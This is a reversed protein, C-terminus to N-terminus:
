IRLFQQGEPEKRWQPAGRPRKQDLERFLDEWQSISFREAYQGRRKLLWRIDEIGYGTGHLQSCECKEEAANDAHWARLLQLLDSLAPLVRANRGWADLAWEIAQVPYPELDRLLQDQREGSFPKGIRAAMAVFGALIRSCESLPRVPQGTTASPLRRRSNHRM